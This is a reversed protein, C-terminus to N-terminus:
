LGTSPIPRCARAYASGVRGAIPNGGDLNLIAKVLGCVDDETIATDSQCWLSVVEEACEGATLPGTFDDLSDYYEFPMPCSCGSDTGIYYGGDEHQLVAVLDFSWEEGTLEATGVKRCKYHAPDYYPNTEYAM